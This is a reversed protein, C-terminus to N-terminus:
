DRREVVRQLAPLCGGGAHRLTACSDIRGGPAKAVLELRGLRSHQQSRLLAFLGSVHAAAYSGGNVLSWEDGIRTTPVGRGPATYIAGRASAQPTDTVAVIGTHSAPFGGGPLADDYAAVVIIGRRLAVDLLRALLLDPPGGLSLNIVQAGNEIAYYMAKALSFSDCVTDVASRGPREWCARLALLRARPAVGAIGRGNGALAAVIGAIETGHQEPAAPRHAVFNMAVQVQGALDVHARDVQSDVIAVRVGRGDAVRHLDALHWELAAPQVLFLPDRGATAAGRTAFLNVPQAWAVRADGALAASVAAPQQGARVAMVFCDVGLLPMPWDDIVALGHRRALAAAIRRRAARSAGDGYGGAYDAGVRVHPAPLRLLVLVQGGGDQAATAIVPPEAAHAPTAAAIWGALVFLPWRATM